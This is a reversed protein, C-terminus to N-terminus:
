KYLNEAFLIYNGNVLIKIIMIKLCSNCIGGVPTKKKSLDSKGKLRIHSESTWSVKQRNELVRGGDVSFDKYDSFDCTSIDPIPGEYTVETRSLVIENERCIICLYRKEQRIEM